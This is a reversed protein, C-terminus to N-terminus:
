EEGCKEAADLAAKLADGFTAYDAEVSSKNHYSITVTWIGDIKRMYVSKM